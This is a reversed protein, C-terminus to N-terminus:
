LAKTNKRTAFGSVYLSVCDTKPWNICIADEDPQGVVFPKKICVPTNKITISANIANGRSLYFGPKFM